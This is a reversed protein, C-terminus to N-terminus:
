SFVDVSSNFNGFSMRGVVKFGIVESESGTNLTEGDFSGKAVWHSEQISKELDKKLKQLNEALVPEDQKDSM